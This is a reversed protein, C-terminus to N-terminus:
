INKKYQIIKDPKPLIQINDDIRQVNDVFTDLRIFSGGHRKALWFATQYDNLLCCFGFPIKIHPKLFLIIDDM